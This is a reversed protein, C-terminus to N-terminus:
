SPDELSQRWTSGLSHTVGSSAVRTPGAICGPMGANTSVECGHGLLLLACRTLAPAANGVSLRCVDSRGGGEEWLPWGLLASDQGVAVVLRCMGEWSGEGEM